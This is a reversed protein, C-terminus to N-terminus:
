ETLVGVEVTGMVINYEVGSDGSISGGGVVNVSISSFGDLNDASAEYTGNEIISKTGLNPTVNVNVPSYVTNGGGYSGNQTVNLAEVVHQETNVNVNVSNYYGAKPTYSGNQTVDLSSLPIEVNVTDYYGQEEPLEFTGNDYVNLTRHPIAVTVKDYYGQTSEDEHQYEGNMTVNLSEHPITVILPDFAHGSDPRYTGNTTITTPNKIIGPANVECLASM